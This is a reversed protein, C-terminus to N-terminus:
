KWVELFSRKCAIDHMKAMMSKSWTRHGDSYARDAPITLGKMFMVGRRCDATLQEVKANAVMAKGNVTALDGSRRVSDTDFYLEVNM